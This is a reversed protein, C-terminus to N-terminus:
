AARRRRRENKEARVQAILREVTRLRDELGADEAEDVHNDTLAALLERTFASWAAMVEVSLRLPPEGEARGLPAPVFRAAACLDALVDHAVPRPLRSLLARLRDYADSGNHLLHYASNISAFGGAAQLAKAGFDDRGDHRRLIDGLGIPM